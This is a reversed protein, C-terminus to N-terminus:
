WWTPAIAAQFDQTDSREPFVEAGTPAYQQAKEALRRADNETDARAIVSKWGRDVHHGDRSLRQALAVAERHARLEIRVRWQAVGTQGSLRRDEREQYDREEALGGESVASADAWQRTVPRWCEVSVRAPIRHRETVDRAAQASAEAATRNSVYAYIPQEGGSGWARMWANLGSSPVGVVVSTGSSRDRM